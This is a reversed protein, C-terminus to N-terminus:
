QLTGKVQCVLEEHGAIAEDWTSYRRCELDFTGGFIMSEFILPPGESRYNHDLGLFITSIRVEAVCTDNVHRDATEFWKAWDLMHKVPKAEKGDLIYYRLSM